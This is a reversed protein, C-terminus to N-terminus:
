RRMWTIQQSTRYAKITTLRARSTSQFYIKEWQVPIIQVRRISM